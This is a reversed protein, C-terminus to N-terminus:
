SYTILGDCYNVLFVGGRGVIKPFFLPPPTKKLNKKHFIKEPLKAGPGGIKKQPSRGWVGLNKRPAEGGSGWFKGPPKAGPGLKKRYGGQLFLFFLQM